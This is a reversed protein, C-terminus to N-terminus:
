KRKKVPSCKLAPSIKVIEDNPLKWENGVHQKLEDAIQLDIDDPIRVASFWRNGDSKFLYEIFHTDAIAEKKIVKYHMVDVM